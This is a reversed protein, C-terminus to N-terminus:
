ERLASKPTQDVAKTKGKWKAPANNQANDALIEDAEPATTGNQDAPVSLAVTDNQYASVALAAATHEALVVNNGKEATYALEVGTRAATDALRQTLPRSHVQTPLLTAETPL